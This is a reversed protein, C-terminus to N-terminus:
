SFENSCCPLYSGLTVFIGFNAQSISYLTSFISKFTKCIQLIKTNRSSFQCWKRSLPKWFQEFNQGSSLREM